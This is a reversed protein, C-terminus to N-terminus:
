EDPFAGQNAADPASGAIISDDGKQSTKKM